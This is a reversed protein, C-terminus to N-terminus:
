GLLTMGSLENMYRKSCTEVLLGNAYIGYNSYYHDNELALHYINFTGQKEYPTSREDVCAMLRYHKDTNFIRGLLEITKERQVDTITKTLISHSGTIILDETLEPYNAQTCRYLRHQSRKDDGSNYIQTTGISDVPLYGHLITKVLTGKRIDQVKLYTEQGDKSCLIKTDELFCPWGLIRRVNPLYTYFYWWTADMDANTGAKILKPLPTNTNTSFILGQQGTYGNVSGNSGFKIDNPSAGYSGQPIYVWELAICERFAFDGIQTLSSPLAINPLALCRNFAWSGIHTLTSPFNVSVLAVCYKFVGRGGTVGDDLSLFGEGFTVGILFTNPPLTNFPIDDPGQEQFSSAPLNTIPNESVLTYPPGYPATTPPLNTSSYGELYYKNPVGSIPADTLVGKNIHVRTGFGTTDYVNVLLKIYGGSM